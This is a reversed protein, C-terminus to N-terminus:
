TIQNSSRFCLLIYLLLGLAGLTMLVTQIGNVYFRDMSIYSFDSYGVVDQITSGFLKETPPLAGFVVYGSVVRAYGSTGETELESSREVIATGIESQLYVYSLGALLPILLLFLYSRKRSSGSYFDVIVKVGLLAVLGVLGSGSRSMLITLIIIINVPFLFKERLDSSFLRLCLYAVLYYGLYSKELFISCPSHNYAHLQVVEAYSLNQYTFQGTLNPVFCLNHGTTQLVVIQIWFLPISVAVIVGM